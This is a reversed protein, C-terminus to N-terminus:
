LRFTLLLVLQCSQITNRDDFTNALNVLQPIALLPLIDSHDPLAEHDPHERAEPITASDICDLAQYIAAGYDTARRLTLTLECQWVNGLEALQTIESLEIEATRNQPLAHLGYEAVDFTPVLLSRIANYVHETM